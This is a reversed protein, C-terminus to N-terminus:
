PINHFSDRCRRDNGAMEVYDSARCNRRELDLWIHCASVSFLRPRVFAVGGSAAAPGVQGERCRCGAAAGWKESTRFFTMSLLPCVPCIINRYICLYRNIEFSESVLDAGKPWILLGRTRSSSLANFAAPSSLRSRMRFMSRCRGSQTQSIAATSPRACDVTDRCRFIRSSLPRRFRALSPSQTSYASM